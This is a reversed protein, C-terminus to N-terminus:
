EFLVGFTGSLLARYTTKESPYNLRAIPVFWVVGRARVKKNARWRWSGRQFENNFICAIPTDDDFVAIYFANTDANVRGKIVGPRRTRM